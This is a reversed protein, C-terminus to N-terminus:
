LLFGGSRPVGGFGEYGAIPVHHIFRPRQAQRPKLDQDLQKGFPAYLSAVGKMPDGDVGKAQLAMHMWILSQFRGPVDCLIDYVTDVTPSITFSVTCERDIGSYASIESVEGAGPGSVLYIRSGSYYGDRPSTHGFTPSAPLIIKTATSGAQVAGYNARVLQRIYLMNFSKEIGPTRPTFGINRGWIYYHDYLAESCREKINIPDILGRLAGEEREVGIVRISNGPMSYEQTGSIFTIEESSTFFDSACAIVSNMHFMVSTDLYLVWNAIPQARDTEQALTILSTDDLPPSQGYVKASKIFDLATLM